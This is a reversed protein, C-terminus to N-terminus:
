LSRKGADGKALFRGHPEIKDKPNSGIGDCSEEYRSKDALRLVGVVGKTVTERDERDALEVDRDGRRTKSASYSGGLSWLERLPPALLPM